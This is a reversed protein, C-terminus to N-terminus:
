ALKYGMLKRGEVKVEEESEELINLFIKEPSLHFFAVALEMGEDLNKCIFEQKRQM